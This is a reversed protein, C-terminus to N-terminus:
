HSKQVPIPHTTTATTTTAHTINFTCKMLARTTPHWYIAKAPIPLIFRETRTQLGFFDSPAWWSHKGRHSGAHKRWMKCSHGEQSIRTCTPSKGPACKDIGCGWNRHLYANLSQVVTGNLLAHFSFSIFNKRNGINQLSNKLFITIKLELCWREVPFNFYNGISICIIVSSWYNRKPKSCFGFFPITSPCVWHAGAKKVLVNSICTLFWPKAWNTHLSRPSSHHLCVM